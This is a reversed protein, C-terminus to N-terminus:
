RGTEGVVRRRRALPAQSPQKEITKEGEPEQDREPIEELRQGIADAHAALDDVRREVLHPEQGIHGAGVDEARRDHALLDEICHERQDALRAFVQHEVEEQEVALAAGRDVRLRMALQRGLQAVRQQRALARHRLQVDQHDGVGDVVDVAAQRRAIQRRQAVRADVHHRDIEVGQAIRVRDVGREPPERHLQHDPSPEPSALRGFGSSAPGSRTGKPAQARSSLKLASWRLTIMPSSPLPPIVPMTVEALGCSALLRCELTASLSDPAASDGNSSLSSAVPGRRRSSVRSPLGPLQRARRACRGLDVARTCTSVSPSIPAAMTRLKAPARTPSLMSM